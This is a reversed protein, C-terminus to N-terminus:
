EDEEEPPLIRVGKIKFGNFETYIIDTTGRKARVADPYCTKNFPCRTCTTNAKWNGTAGEHSNDKPYYVEEDEEYCFDPMEDGYAQKLKDKIGRTVMDHIVDWDDPTDVEKLDSYNKAVVDWGGFPVGHMNQYTVAQELYGYHDNDIMSDFSRWKTNYAYDNATKMDRIELPTNEDEYMYDISGTIIIPKGKDDLVDDLVWKGRKQVNKIGAGAMRALLVYFAEAIKGIFFTFQMMGDVKERKDPFQRMFWLRRAGHGLASARPFRSEHKAYIEKFGTRCSELAEWLYIPKVKLRGKAAEKNLHDKLIKILSM